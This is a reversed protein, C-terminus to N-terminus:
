EGSRSPRVLNPNDPRTAMIAQIQPFSLPTFDNTDVGVDWSKGIPPLGGHSHGYLHWANYHSKPWVRLCYHCLTVHQREERIELLPTASLFRRRYQMAAKDHSGIILVIKGKLRDLVPRVDGFGVDGVHYVTDEDGVVRNWNAVMTENMEEVTAFPRHCYRIINAHNFHTDATFFLM